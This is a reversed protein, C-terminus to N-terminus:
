SGRPLLEKHDTYVERRQLSPTLRSFQMEKPDVALFMLISAVSLEYGTSVSITARNARRLSYSALHFSTLLVRGTEGYDYVFSYLMGRFYLSYWAHCYIHDSHYKAHKKKRDWINLRMSKSFYMRLTEKLHFIWLLVFIKTNCWFVHQLVGAM